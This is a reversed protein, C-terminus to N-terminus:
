CFRGQPISALFVSVCVKEQSFKALAELERVYQKGDWAAQHEPIRIGKVARLEPSSDDDHNKIKRELWVLGYGGHGLIQERVWTEHRSIARRGPPRTHITVNQTIAAPLRSDRVLEPLVGYQGAMDSQSLQLAHIGFSPLLTITSFLGFHGSLFCTM